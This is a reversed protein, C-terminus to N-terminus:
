IALRFQGMFFNTHIATPQFRRIELASDAMDMVCLGLGNGVDMM